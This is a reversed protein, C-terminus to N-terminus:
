KKIQKLSTESNGLLPKYKYIPRWILVSFDPDLHIKLPTSKTNVEWTTTKKSIDIQQNTVTGDEYEIKVPLSISYLTTPQEQTITFTWSNQQEIQKKNISLVPAGSFDLWQHFFQKLNKDPASQIFISRLDGITLTKHKYDTQIHKLISFFLENGLKLHLMHWIWAGKSGSLAIDSGTFGMTSLPKDFGNAWLYFYGNASHLKDLHTSSFNLYQTLQENKVLRIFSLLASYHALSETGFNAGPGFFRVQNGWWYHAYEHAIIISSIQRGYHIYEKTVMYGMESSAMWNSDDNYIEVIKYPESSITGFNDNFFPQIKEFYANLKDYRSYRNLSYMHMADFRNPYLKAAIFSIPSPQNFTWREISRSFKNIKRIRKGTTVIHWRNPIDFFLSGKNPLAHYGYPDTTNIPLPYWAEVWSYSIVKSNAIAQFYQKQSRCKFSVTVIQDKKIPYKFNIMASEQVQDPRSHDLQIISNPSEVSLFRMLNTRSNMWLKLQSSHSSRLKYTANGYYTIFSSKKNIKIHLDMTLCDWIPETSFSFMPICLFFLYFFSKYKIHNTM